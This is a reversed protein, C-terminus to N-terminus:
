TDTQKAQELAKEVVKQREAGHAVSIELLKRNLERAAIIDKEGSLRESLALGILRFEQATLSLVYETKMDLHPM